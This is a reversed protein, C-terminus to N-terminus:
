NTKKYEEIFVNSFTKKDCIITATELKTKEENLPVNNVTATIKVILNNERSENTVTALQKYFEMLPKKDKKTDYNEVVCTGTILIDKGILSTVELPLGASLENLVLEKAKEEDLISAKLNASDCETRKKSSSEVAIIRHSNKGVDEVNLVELVRGSYIVSKGGDRQCIGSALISRKNLLYIPDTEIERITSNPSNKIETKFFLNMISYSELLVEKKPCVVFVPKEGIVVGNVNDDSLSTIRLQDGALTINGGDRTRCQGSLQLNNGPSLSSESMLGVVHGALGLYVGGVVSITSTLVIVKLVTKISMGSKKIVVPESLLKKNYELIADNLDSSRRFFDAEMERRENLEKKMSNVEEELIRVKIEDSM